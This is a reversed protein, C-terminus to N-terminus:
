FDSAVYSGIQIARLRVVVGHPIPTHPKQACSNHLLLFRNMSKQWDFTAPSVFWCPPKSLMYLLKRPRKLISTFQRTLSFTQDMAYAKSEPAELGAPSRLHSPLTAHHNVLKVNLDALERVPDPPNAEAIAQSFPVVANSGWILSQSPAHIRTGAFSDLEPSNSHSLGFHEPQLLPLPDLWSDTTTSVATGQEGDSTHAAEPAMHPLADDLM